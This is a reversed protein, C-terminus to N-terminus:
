PTAAAKFKALGEHTRPSDPRCRVAWEFYAKARAYDHRALALDGAALFSNLKFLNEAISRDYDAFAAATEGRLRHVDARIVYFEKRGMDIGEQTMRFAKEKDGGAIAPAQLYTNALYYRYPVPKPDLAYAAEYAARTRRHWKWRELSGTAKVLHAYFIMAQQFRHLHQKPSSAIARDIFAEAEDLAGDERDLQALLNLAGDTVTSAAALRVLDAKVEQRAGRNLRSVEPELAPWARLYDDLPIGTPQEVYTIPAGDPAAAGAGALPLLAVAAIAFRKRLRPMAPVVVASM